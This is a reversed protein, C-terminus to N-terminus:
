FAGVDHTTILKEMISTEERENPNINIETTTIKLNKKKNRANLM